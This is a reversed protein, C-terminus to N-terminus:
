TLRTYSYTGFYIKMNSNNDVDAFLIESGRPAYETDKWIGLKDAYEESMGSGVEIDAYHEPIIVHELYEEPINKIIKNKYLQYIAEYDVEGSDGGGGSEEAKTYLNKGYRRLDLNMNEKTARNRM